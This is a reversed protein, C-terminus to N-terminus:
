QVQPQRRARHSLIARNACGGVGPVRRVMTLKAITLGRGPPPIPLRLPSLIGWAEAYVLELRTGPIEGDM